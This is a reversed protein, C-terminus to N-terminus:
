KVKISEIEIEDLIADEDEKWVIVRKSNFTYYEDEESDQDVEFVVEFIYGDDYFSISWEDDWDNVTFDECNKKIDETYAGTSLKTLYAKKTYKKEEYSFKVTVTTTMIKLLIKLTAGM